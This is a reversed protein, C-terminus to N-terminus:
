RAPQQSEHARAGKALTERRWTFVADHYRTEVLCYTDSAQIVKEIEVCEHGPLIVFLNLSSRVIKYVRLSLEMTETCDNRSCECLFEGSASMSVIEALRENVERLLLQNRVLHEPSVTEM